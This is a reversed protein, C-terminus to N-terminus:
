LRMVQCRHSPYVFAKRLRSPCEFIVGLVNKEVNVQCKCTEVCSLVVRCDLLRPLRDAHIWVDFRGVSTQSSSVQSLSPIGVGYCFELLRDSKGSASGDSRARPNSVRM